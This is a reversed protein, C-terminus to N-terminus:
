KNVRVDMVPYGAEELLPVFRDPDTDDVQIVVYISDDRYVVLHSINVNADGLVKAIHGLIGPKDEKVDVVIRSGERYYGLIEIFSGFIDKETIIGLLHNEEDVVPLCAIGHQRMVDAAKELIEDPGITIVRKVMISEVTTKTLLYNLEHVSLSTANSPTNAQIIGETILGILHNTSDVVPLRHFNNTSFADLADSVTFEKGITVPNKTMKTKVYM